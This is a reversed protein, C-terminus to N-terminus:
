RLPIVGSDPNLGRFVNTNLDWTLAAATTSGNPQDDRTLTVGRGPDAWLLVNREAEVYRLHDSVVNFDGQTVRVAGDADIQRVRATPAAEGVWAGLGGTETLDALLRQADLKIPEATEGRGAATDLPKHVMWVDGEILMDNAQADLTLRDLWAFLTVGPGAMLVGKANGDGDAEPGEPPPRFDELLMKGKGDVVVRQVAIHDNIRSDDELNPPENTFTLRPGILTLRTVAERPQGAEISGTAASGPTPAFTRASFTVESEADGPVATALAHRLAIQTNRTPNQTNPNAAGGQQMAQPDFTLSLDHAQLRTDDTPTTSAADVEGLFHVRGTRNDFAMSRQWTVRLTEEPAEPASRTGSTGPADPNLNATFTGPGLVDATESNELLVLHQGTLTADDRTLTADVDPLGFLELRGARPDADLAHATLTTSATATADRSGPSAPTAADETLQVNVDGLARLRAIDVAGSTLRSRVREPPDGPVAAAQEPTPAQPPALTIDLQDTTLRNGPQLARVNGTALLRSPRPKPDPTEATAPPTTLSLALADTRLDLQDDATDGVAVAHVQGVFTASDLTGLGGASDSSGPAPAIGPVDSSGPAPTPAFALDLRDNFTVALDHEPTDLTGPGLLQGAKQSQQVWLSSGTLRGLDPTTLAVPTAPGSAAVVRGAATQYGLTAATVHEDRDTDLRAPNGVLTFQADGPGALEPPQDKLPTLVLQGDWHLVLDTESPTLLARPDKPTKSKHTLFKSNPTPTLTPTPTSLDAASAAEASSASPAAEPSPTPPPTSDTPAPTNDAAAPALSFLVTLTDGALDADNGRIRVRAAMVAQYCTPAAATAAPTPGPDPTQPRPDPPLPSLTDAIEPAPGPDPSRPAASRPAAPPQAAAVSPTGAATALRLEDAHHIVMREVRQSLNNYTLDLGRGTFDADPRVLRVPGETSVIGEERNFATVDDFYLRFQVHAPDATDLPVGGPSEYLTLVTNAHFEGRQPVNGPHFFTGSDAQITLLRTPAFRVEAVPHEVDSIFNERPNARSGRLRTVTEGDDVFIDFNDVGYIPSEEADTLSDRDVTPLTALEPGKVGPTDVGDAVREAADGAAGPGGIYYAGALVGAALTTAALIVLYRKDM